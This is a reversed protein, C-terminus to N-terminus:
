AATGTFFVEDATYLDTKIILVKEEGTQLSGFYKGLSDTNTAEPLPPTHGHLTDRGHNGAVSLSDTKLSHQQPSPPPPANLWMWVILVIGILIFGLTTQKDM